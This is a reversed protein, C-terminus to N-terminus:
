DKRDIPLRSRQSCAKQGRFTVKREHQVEIAPAAYRVNANRERVGGM